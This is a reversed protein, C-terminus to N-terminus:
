PVEMTDTVLVEPKEQVRQTRQRRKRGTTFDVEVLDETTRSSRTQMCKSLVSLSEPDQMLRMGVWVALSRPMVRKCGCLPLSSVGCPLINMTPAVRIASCFREVSAWTRELRWCVMGDREMQMEGM